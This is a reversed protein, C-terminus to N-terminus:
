FRNFVSLIPKFMRGPALFHTNVMCGPASAYGGCRPSAERPLGHTSSVAQGERLPSLKMLARHYPYSHRLLAVGGESGYLRIERM